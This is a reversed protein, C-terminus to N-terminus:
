ALSVSDREATFGSFVGLHLHNPHAPIQLKARKVGSHSNLCRVPELVELCSGPTSNFGRLTM